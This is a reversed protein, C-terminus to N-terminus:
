LCLTPHSSTWTKTTLHSVSSCWFWILIGCCIQGIINGNVDDHRMKASALHPRNSWISYCPRDALRASTALGITIGNPFNIRTPGLFLTSSLTWIGMYLPIIKSPGVWAMVPCTQPDIHEFHSVPSLVLLICIGIPPANSPTGITAVQRIRSFWGHAAAIHGQTLNSQASTILLTYALWQSCHVLRWAVIFTWLIIFMSGEKGQWLWSSAAHKSASTEAASRLRQWCVVQGEFCREREAPCKM